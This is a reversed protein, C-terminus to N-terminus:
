KVWIPHKYALGFGALLADLDHPSEAHIWGGFDNTFKADGALRKLRALDEAADARPVLITYRFM